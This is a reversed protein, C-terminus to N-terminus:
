CPSYIIARPALFSVPLAGTLKPITDSILKRLTLGFLVQFASTKSVSALIFLSNKPTM